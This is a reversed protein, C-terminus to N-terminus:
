YARTGYWGTIMFAQFFRVPLPIGSQRLLDEVETPPLVALMDRLQAPLSALAEPTAGTLMQVQEWSKLMSPFEPASLDFSAETNVFIGGPRLRNTISRYFGPRDERGVFHGVLVSLAADFPETPPLDQITGQVLECRDLVSASGLNEQCVELMDTSPDLGVFRWDPHAASLSLVEAGTGIGVCLVRAQPPLGALLLRILFHMGDGIPALKRNREDYSRSFARNFFSAM